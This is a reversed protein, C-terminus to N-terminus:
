RSTPHEEVGGNVEGVNDWHSGGGNRNAGLGRTMRGQGILEDVVDDNGGRHGRDRGGRGVREGVENNPLLWCVETRMKAAIHQGGYKYGCRKGIYETNLECMEIVSMVLAGFRSCVFALLLPVGRVYIWVTVIVGVIADVRSHLM